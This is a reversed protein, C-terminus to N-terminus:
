RGARCRHVWMLSVTLANRVFRLLWNPSAMAAGAACEERKQKHRTLEVPIAAGGLLVERLALPEEKELLRWLQTPVLSAHSCGRLAENISQATSIALQGGAYLWRWLIGQGSVHFLPLSLLWSDGPGYHMMTLVGAASALHASFTHVAAKPLGTSGSTLTM